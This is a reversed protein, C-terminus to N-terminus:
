YITQKNTTLYPNWNDPYFARHQRIAPGFPGSKTIKARVQQHADCFAYRNKQTSFNYRNKTIVMLLNKRLRKQV